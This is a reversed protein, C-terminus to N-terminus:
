HLVRMFSYSRYEWGSDPSRLPKKPHLYTHNDLESLDANKNIWQRMTDRLNDERPEM